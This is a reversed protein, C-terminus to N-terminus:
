NECSNLIWHYSKFMVKAGVTWLDIPVLTFSNLSEFM